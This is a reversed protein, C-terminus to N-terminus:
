QRCSGREGINSVQESMAAQIGRADVGFRTLCVQSHHHRAQFIPLENHLAGRGTASAKNPDKALAGQARTSSPWGDERLRSRASCSSPNRM